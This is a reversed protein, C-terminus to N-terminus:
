KKDLKVVYYETVYGETMMMQKHRDNKINNLAARESKHNTNHRHEGPEPQVINRIWDIKKGTWVAVCIHTWEAKSKFTITEGNRLDATYTNM